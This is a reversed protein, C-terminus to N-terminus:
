NTRTTIWYSKGTITLLVPTTNETPVTVVPTTKAIVATDISISWPLTEMSLLFGLVDSFSGGASVAFTGSSEKAAPPAFQQVDITVRRAAASQELTTIFRLASESTLLRSNLITLKDQLEASRTALDSSRESLQNLENFTIREDAIGNKLDSLVNWSPIVLALLALCVGGIIILLVSERNLRM